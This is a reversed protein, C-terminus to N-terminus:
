SGDAPVWGSLWSWFEADRAPDAVELPLAALPGTAAYAEREERVCFAGGEVDALVKWPAEGGPRHRPRERRSRAAARGGRGAADRGAPRSAAAAPVPEACAGSRLVPRSLRDRRPGPADRLHRPGRHPHHHRAGGGLLPGAPDPGHRRHRPEGPVHGGTHPAPAPPA